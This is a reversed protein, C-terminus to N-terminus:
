QMCYKVQVSSVLEEILLDGRSVGRVEEVM